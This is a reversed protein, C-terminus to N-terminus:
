DQEKYAEFLQKNEANMFAQKGSIIGDRFLVQLSDDFTCMGAKKGSQMLSILQFMKGEKIISSVGQNVILVELALAVGTKDIRPILKQSLIGRLSESIMITIQERQKIPYVDLIRSVTRSASGTHLTGFVLHGTEAASLAISITEHNRLEGVLIIDPDERLAARLAMGFSESHLGMERMTVQCNIPKHVYEIPDEVTIIHDERHQNVYNIMAAVTTSKGSGKPGTVLVMGQHHDTLDKCVQPLGLGDITPIVNPIIRYVGNWGLRQHFVNCRHRGIGELQLAFDLNLKECLVERQEQTLLQFNLQETFEATLPPMEMYRVEGGMRVFPPKDVCIHLDSAGWSRAILLLDKLKKIKSLAERAEVNTVVPKPPAIPAIPAAPSAPASASAPKASQATPAASKTPAHQNHASPAAQPPKAHQGSQHSVDKRSANLEEDYIRKLEEEGVALSDDESQLLRMAKEADSVPEDQQDEEYSDALNQGTSIEEYPNILSQLAFLQEDTIYHKSLLLQGADLNPEGLLEDAIRQYQKKSILRQEAAAELIPHNM